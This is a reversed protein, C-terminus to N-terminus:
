IEPFKFIRLQSARSRRRIPPIARPSSPAIGEVFAEGGGSVEVERRVDIKAGHLTLQYRWILAHYDGWRICHSDTRFTSPVNVLPKAREFFNFASRALQLLTLSRGQGGWRWSIEARGRRRGLNWTAMVTDKEGLEAGMAETAAGGGAAHQQGTWVVVRVAAEWEYDHGDTVRERPRRLRVAPAPRLGWVGEGLQVVVLRTVDATFAWRAIIDVSVLDLLPDGPTSAAHPVRPSTTVFVVMQRRSRQQYDWSMRREDGRAGSRISQKPPALALHARASSTGPRLATRTFRASGAFSIPSFLEQVLRALM